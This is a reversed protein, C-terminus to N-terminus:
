NQRRALCCCLELVLVSKANEVAGVLAAAGGGGDSVTSVALVGLFVTAGTGNCFIAAAGGDRSVTASLATKLMTTSSLYM